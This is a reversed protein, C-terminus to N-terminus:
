EGTWGVRYRHTGRNAVVWTLAWAGGEMAAQLHDHGHVQGEVEVWDGDVLRELAWGDPRPLGRVTVPTYGLGGGLEFDAAVAAPSAAIELPQVQVVEGAYPSVDLQNDAALGVMLDPTGFLAEAALLHDSQGYYRDFRAPPVLYEVTARVRSGAPVFRTQGGCPEGCWPSGDEHPLGLEFAYQPGGNDTPRINIHPTTLTADGVTAEFSRVVFGVDAFDERLDDWDRQNDYLLVWPSTGELPIGRDADSAYGVEDHDPVQGDFAVGAANGWAYGAFGNDSYNDAAVQFFALRDYAVDQLFTYDLQYWARVLDDTAGMQVRISAEIAGDASVGAYTVDTLNPGPAAYHSRVRGLRQELQPANATRYRLFDAGGVNGTWGWPNQSQVLLPRVDDVMSRNLTVDPDYTISEGFCGLASEQWHGGADGWGILSLQAHSAAYPLGWRSSAMTLEFAHEGDIVPQAYLHYWSEGHWNKSVQLPVGLPDGGEQRLLPAGGTIYWSLKAPGHMALPLAVGDASAEIRHRGYWNHFAETNWDPQAPAGANQLPQLDLRFAGLTPDWPAPVPDGIPLGEATMLNSTVSAQGEPDVYLAEEADSLSARPAVLLSVTDTGEAIVEGAEYALTADGYVVLLWDGLALAQDSRWEPTGGFAQGALVVRVTGPAAHTFVVHRPMASVAMSGTPGPPDYGVAPVDLRNMWRGGDIMRARDVANPASGEFTTAVADDLELRLIALPLEDILDNGALLAQSASGPNLPGFHEIGGTEENLALGYHGTLLHHERLATPWLHAPRHNSPWYWFAYDRDDVTLGPPPETCFPNAEDLAFTWDDLDDDCAVPVLCPDDPQEPLPPEGPVCQGDEDCAELGNCYLGDDCDDCPAPTPTPDPDPTPTSILDPFPETPGGDPCAVLLACAALLLTWRM